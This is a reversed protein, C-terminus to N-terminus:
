RRFHAALEDPSKMRAYRHKRGRKQFRNKALKFTEGSDDDAELYGNDFLVDVTSQADQESTGTLNAVMRLDLTDDPNETAFEKLSGLAKLTPGPTYVIDDDEGEVTLFGDDYLGNIVKDRDGKDVEANSLLENMLSAPMEPDDEGYDAQHAVIDKIANEKGAAIREESGADSDDDQSQQASHQALKNAMDDPSQGHEAKGTFQGGEPSGAEVHEHGSADAAYRTKGRFYAALEDPSRM